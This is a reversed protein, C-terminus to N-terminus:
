PDLKPGEKMRTADNFPMLTSRVPISAWLPKEITSRYWSCIRVITRFSIISYGLASKSNVRASATLASFSVVPGSPSTGDARTNPSYGRDSIGSSYPLHSVVSSRLSIAAMRLFSISVCISLILILRASLIFTGDAVSAFKSGSSWTNTQRSCPCM